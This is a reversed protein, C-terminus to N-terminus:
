KRENETMELYLNDEDSLILVNDIMIFKLDKSKMLSIITDSKAYSIFESIEELKDLIRIRKCSQLLKEKELSRIHEM